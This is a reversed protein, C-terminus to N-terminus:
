GSFNGAVLHALAWSLAAVATLVVAHRRWHALTAPEGDGTKGAFRTIDLRRAAITLIVAAAACADLYSPLPASRAGILILSLYLAGPGALMWFMRLLCGAPAPSASALDTPSNEMADDEALAVLRGCFPPGVM